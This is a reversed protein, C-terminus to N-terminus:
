DNRFDLGSRAPENDLPQEKHVLVADRSVRVVPPKAHQIRFRIGDRQTIQKILRLRRGGYRGALRRLQPKADSLSMAWPRSSSMAEWGAKM